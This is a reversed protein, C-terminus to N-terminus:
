PYRPFSTIIGPLCVGAAIYIFQRSGLLPHLILVTRAAYMQFVTSSFCLVFYGSLVSQAVGATDKFLKNRLRTKCNWGSNYLHLGFTWVFGYSTALWSRQSFGNFIHSTVQRQERGAKWCLSLSSYSLCCLFKPFFYHYYLFRLTDQTGTFSSENESVKIQTVLDNKDEEPALVSFCHVCNGALGFLYGFALLWRSYARWSLLFQNPWFCM